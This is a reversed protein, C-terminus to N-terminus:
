GADVLAQVQQQADALLADIDADEQTLVAQVVPDLAAYLQQAMVPPEPILPLTDVTAMYSEFNESPVNIYPEVWELWQQYRDIGVTPFQPEGVATGSENAQQAAQVAIEEDTYRAFSFYEIWELGAEIEEPSADPKIFRYTGGGLTGLGDDAQPLPAIGFDEPAMGLNTVMNVYSNSGNIYMGAQGSAFANLGDDYNILFNNGFSDDEWRLDHYWQLVERTAPNDITVTAGDESQLTSGFAYSTTALIWGGNNESTMTMFGQADTNDSIAKAAERVEDWTTPPSDPDLGAEAFLARNYVLSQTYAWTPVGYTRGDREAAAVAAPNLDNLIEFDGLYDTLDAAQQRDIILGIETYPTGFVTPLTGGAVLSQFTDAAWTTEEPEINIHPHAEEFAEVTALFAERREINEESPMDSVSITIEGTGGSDTTADGGPTGAEGASCASLGILAAVSAALTTKTAARM